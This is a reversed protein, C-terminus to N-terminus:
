PHISIQYIQTSTLNPPSLRERSNTQRYSYTRKTCEGPFKARPCDASAGAWPLVCPCVQPFLVRIYGCKCTKPPFRAIKLLM